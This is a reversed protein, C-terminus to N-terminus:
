VYMPEALARDYTSFAEAYNPEINRKMVGPPMKSDNNMNITLRLM